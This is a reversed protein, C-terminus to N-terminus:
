TLSGTITVTRVRTVGVGRHSARHCMDRTAGVIRHCTDRGPTMSGLLQKDDMLDYPTSRHRSLSAILRLARGSPFLALNLVHTM